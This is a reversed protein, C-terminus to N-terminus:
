IFQENNCRLEEFVIHKVGKLIIFILQHFHKRTTNPKNM